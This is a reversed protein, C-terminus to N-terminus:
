GKPQTAVATSPRRRQADLFSRLPALFIEASGRQEMGSVGAELEALGAERQGAGILARGREAQLRQPWDNGPSAQALKGADLRQLLALAQRTDGTDTLSVARFFDIGQIAPSDEGGLKLMATRQSELAERAERARGGYLLAVSRNIAALQTLQANPGRTRLFSDYAAALPAIAKDLQGLNVYLDGLLSNAMAVYADDPGVSRRFVDLAGLLLAETSQTDGTAIQL